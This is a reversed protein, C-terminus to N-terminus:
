AKIVLVGSLAAAWDQWTTFGGQRPMGQSGFYGYQSLRDAWERWNDEPVVSLNQKAFLEAMIKCWSDWTHGRPDYSIM